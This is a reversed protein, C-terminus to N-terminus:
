KPIPMIMGIEDQEPKDSMPRRFIIPKNEAHFEMHIIRSHKATNKLIDVLLSLQEIDISTKVVANDSDVLLSQYRPYTSGEIDALASIGHCGIMLQDKTLDSYRKETPFLRNLIIKQPDIMGAVATESGEEQAWVNQIKALIYSNTVVASGDGEFYMHKLVKRGIKKNYKAWLTAFKMAKQNIWM